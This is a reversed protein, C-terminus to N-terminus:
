NDIVIYVQLNGLYWAKMMKRPEEMPTPFSEVSHIIRKSPASGEVALSTPRNSMRERYNLYRTLYTTIYLELLKMKFEYFSKIFLM